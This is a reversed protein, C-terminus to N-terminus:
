KLKHLKCTNNNGCASRCVTIPCEASFNQWCKYCIIIKIYTCIYKTNGRIHIPLYQINAVYSCLHKCQILYNSCIAILKVRLIFIGEININM